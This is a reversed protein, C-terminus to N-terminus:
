KLDNDYFSRGDTPRFATGPDNPSSNKIVVTGSNDHWFGQREWGNPTTQLNKSATPNSIVNEVHNRFDIRSHVNIDSFPLNRPDPNLVHKEYAHHNAIRNASISADRPSLIVQRPPPVVPTKYLNLPPNLEKVPPPPPASKNLGRFADILGDYRGSEAKTSIFLLSGFVVLATLKFVSNGFM